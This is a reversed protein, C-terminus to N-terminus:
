RKTKPKTKQTKQVFLNSPRTGLTTETVARVFHSNRAKQIEALKERGVELQIARINATGAEGLDQLVDGKGRIGSCLQKKISHQRGPCKVAFAELVIYVDIKALNGNLDIVEREYKNESM